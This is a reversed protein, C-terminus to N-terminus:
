TSFHKVLALCCQLITLHVLFFCRIAQDPHYYLTSDDRFGAEIVKDGVYLSLWQPFLPLFIQAPYASSQARLASNFSKVSIRKTKWGNSFNGLKLTAEGRM